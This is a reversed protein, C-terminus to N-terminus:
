TGKLKSLCTDFTAGHETKNIEDLLETAQKVGNYEVKFDENSLRLREFFFFGGTLLMFDTWEKTDQIVPYTDNYVNIILKPIINPSVTVGGMLQPVSLSGIKSGNYYIIVTVKDSYFGFTIHRQKFQTEIDDLYLTHTLRRKFDDGLLATAVDINNQLCKVIREGYITYVVDM